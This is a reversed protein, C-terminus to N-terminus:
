WPLQTGKNNSWLCAKHYTTIRVAGSKEAVTTTIVTFAWRCKVVRQVSGDTFVVADDRRGKDPIIDKIGLEAATDKTCGLYARM